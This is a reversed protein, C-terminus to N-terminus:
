ITSRNTTVKWIISLNAHLHIKLTKNGNITNWSSATLKYTPPVGWCMVENHTTIIMLAMWLAEKVHVLDPQLLTVSYDNWYVWVESAESIKHFVTWEINYSFIIKCSCDNLKINLKKTGKQPFSHQKQQKLSAM